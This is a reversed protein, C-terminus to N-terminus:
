WIFHIRKVRMRIQSKHNITFFLKIDEYEWGRVRRMRTSGNQHTKARFICMLIDCYIVLDCNCGEFLDADKKKHTNKKYREVPLMEYRFKNFINNSFSCYITRTLSLIFNISKILFNSNNQFQWLFSKSSM